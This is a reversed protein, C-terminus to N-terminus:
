SSRKHSKPLESLKLFQPKTTGALGATRKRLDLFGRCVREQSSVVESGQELWTVDEAGAGYLALISFSVLWPAFLLLDCSDM